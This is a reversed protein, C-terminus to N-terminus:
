EEQPKPERSDEIFKLLDAKKYRPSKGLRLWAPGRRLLRWQGLVSTSVNLITAAAHEDFLASQPAGDFECRVANRYQGATPQRARGLAEILAVLGPSLQADAVKGSPSTKPPM